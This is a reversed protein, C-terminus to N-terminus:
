AQALTHRSSQRTMGGQASYVTSNRNGGTLVGLLGEVRRLRATVLAGNRQNLQQCRGAKELCTSWKTALGNAPDCWRLLHGLGEADASFGLMKCLSRREEDIRLLSSICGQRANGAEEIADVNGDELLGHEKTLLVELQALTRWEDGLLQEVHQRTLMPDLQKGNVKSNM